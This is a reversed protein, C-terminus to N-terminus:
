QEKSMNQPPNALIQSPSIGYMCKFRRSFYAASEFGLMQAVDSISHSGESILNFAYELRLQNHYSKLTIGTTQRFIQGLYNPSFYLQNAIEDISIHKNLNNMIYEKVKDTLMVTRILNNPQYEVEDEVILKIVHLLCILIDIRKRLFIQKANSPSQNVIENFISKIFKIDVNDDPMIVPLDTRIHTYPEFKFSFGIYMNQVNLDSQNIFQHMKHPPVVFLAPKSCVLPMDELMLTYPGPDNRSIYILEWFPHDHMVGTWNPPFTALGILEIKVTDILEIQMRVDNQQRIRHTM